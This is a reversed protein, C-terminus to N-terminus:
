LTDVNEFPTKKTINRPLFCVRCYRFSNFSKIFGLIRNLELNDGLILGLVFYVRFCGNETIIELGAEELEKLKEIIPNLFIHVGFKNIDDKNIFSIPFIFTLKSQLHQPLSPFICYCALISCSHSSKPNIRYEDFYLYYPIVYDSAYNKCINKYISGCVFNCLDNKLILRKQNEIVVKFVNKMEFFAKFLFPVPMLYLFTQNELLTPIGGVVKYCVRNDICFALPYEYLGKKHLLKVFLYESKIDEFPASCISELISVYNLNSEVLPCHPLKKVIELIVALLDSICTQIFIVEKRPMKNKAYLSLVLSMAKTKFKDIYDVDDTESIENDNEVSCENDAVSEGPENLGDNTNIENIVTRPIRLTMSINPKHVRLLHKKFTKLKSFKQTCDGQACQVEFISSFLHYLKLHNLFKRLFNFKQKCAFCIFNM